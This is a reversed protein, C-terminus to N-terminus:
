KRKVEIQNAPIRISFTTKGPVSSLSIEGHLEEEVLDQVLNLGLGRNVEGTTYNIKTSFGTKFVEELHEPPIGPGADTVDFLYFDDELSQKVDIVVTSDNTAELANIFLNRFISMLAYHKDTYFNQQYHYTLTLEKNQDKALHTISDKLISFLEYIYMGDNDLEQDLADSIGRMILLYEKKVEHIDRAISLALSALEPNSDETKLREFLRYSKSMTEEILATNKNMWAVEGNLKSILLVLRKYRKEHEKQLLFFRYRHFVFLICWIIFSRLLAVVLVGSLTRPSFVQFKLRILLEVLNATFDVLTLVPFLFLKAQNNSTYLRHYFYLCVGYCLYFCMEPLYTSLNSLHGEQIWNIIMRMLCVGISSLGTVPLLPFRNTLFLFACLFIVGLSIQFDSVFLSISLQAAIMIIMSYFLIKQWTKKM